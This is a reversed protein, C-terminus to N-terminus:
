ESHVAVVSFPLAVVEEETLRKRWQKADAFFSFGRDKAIQREDYRLCAAYLKRPRLADELQPGLDDVRELLRCLIMVDALARHAGVVPFDHDVALHGLNRSARSKPFRLESASCVWPRYPLGLSHAVAIKDVMPRDFKKNHAVIWRAAHFM